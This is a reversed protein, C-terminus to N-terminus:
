QLLSPMQSDIRDSAILLIEEKVSLMSMHRIPM